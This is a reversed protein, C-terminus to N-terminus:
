VRMGKYMTAGVKKIESFPLIPVTLFERYKPDLFYVYRLQFGELNKSGELVMGVVGSEEPKKHSKRTTSTETSM